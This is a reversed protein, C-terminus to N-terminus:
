RPLAEFGCCASHPVCGERLNVGVPQRQGLMAVILGLGQKEIKQAATTDATKGCHRFLTRQRAADRCKGAGQQGHRSRKDDIPQPCAIEGPDLVLAIVIDAQAAIEQPAFHQREHRAAKRIRACCQGTGGVVKGLVLQQGCLDRLLIRENMLEDRWVM